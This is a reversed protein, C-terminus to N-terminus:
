KAAEDAALKAKQKEAADIVGKRTDGEILADVAEATECAAIKEAMQAVNLTAGPAEPAKPPPPLPPAAEVVPQLRLKAATEEDCYVTDGPSLTKGGIKKHGDVVVYKKDPM